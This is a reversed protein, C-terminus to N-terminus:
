FDRNNFVYRASSVVKGNETVEGILVVKYTGSQAVYENIEPGYARFTEKVLSGFQSYIRLYYSSTSGSLQNYTVKLNKSNSDWSLTTPARFGSLTTWQINSETLTRTESNLFYKLVYTGGIFTGEDRELLAEWTGTISEYTLDSGTIKNGNADEIWGGSVGSGTIIAHLTDKVVSNEYNLKGASLTANFGSSSTASDGGSGGCGTMSFISIIILFILISKKV